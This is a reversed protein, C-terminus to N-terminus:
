RPTTSSTVRRGVHGAADAARARAAQRHHQPHQRVGSRLSQRGASREAANRRRRPQPLRHLRARRDHGERRLDAHEQRRPEQHRQTSGVAVFRGGSVAFAEARPARPDMTYVKANIVISIRSETGGTTAAQPAAQAAQVSAVLEPAGPLPPSRHAPPTSSNDAAQRSSTM